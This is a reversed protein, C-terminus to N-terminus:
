GRAMATKLAQVIDSLRRDRARRTLERIRANLNAIASHAQGADIVRVPALLIPIFSTAVLFGAQICWSSDIM